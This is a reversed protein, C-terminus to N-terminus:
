LHWDDYYLLSNGCSLLDMLKWKMLKSSQYWINRKDGHCHWNRHVHKCQRKWIKTHCRRKWWAKHSTSNDKQHAQHNVWPCWQCRIWFTWGWRWDVLIHSWEDANDGDTLARFITYLLAKWEESICFYSTSIYFPSSVALNQDMYLHSIAM